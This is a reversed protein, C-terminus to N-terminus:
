NQPTSSSSMWQSLDCSLLRRIARPHRLRAHSLRWESLVQFLPSEPGVGVGLILGRHVDLKKPTKVFACMRFVPLGCGCLNERMRVGGRLKQM